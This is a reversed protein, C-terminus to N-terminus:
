SSSGWGGHRLVSDMLQRVGEPTHGASVVIPKGPMQYTVTFLQM